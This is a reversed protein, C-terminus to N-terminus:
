LLNNKANINLRPVINLAAVARILCITRCFKPIEIHRAIVSCGVGVTRNRKKPFLFHEYNRSVAIKAFCMM